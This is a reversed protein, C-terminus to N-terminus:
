RRAEELKKKEDNPVCPWCVQKGDSDRMHLTESKAGCAKCRFDHKM